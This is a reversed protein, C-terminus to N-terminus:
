WKKRNHAHCIAMALADGSHESDIKPKNLLVGVMMQIQEKTAHGIGVVSKKILNPSYEFVSIGLISPTLIAVGRAQGLKLTSSPNVNVFVEEVAVEEPKYQELVERLRKYIEALREPLTGKESINLTGNAIHRFQNNTFDVIGWGTHRLGPDIGM